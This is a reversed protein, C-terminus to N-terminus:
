LICACVSVCALDIDTHQFANILLLRQKSKVTKEFLHWMQEGDALFQKFIFLFTILSKKPLNLM